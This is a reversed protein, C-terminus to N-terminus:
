PNLHIMALYLGFTYKYTIPGFYQIYKLMDFKALSVELTIRTVVVILSSVFLFVDSTHTMDCTIGVQPRLVGYITGM